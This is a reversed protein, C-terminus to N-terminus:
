HPYDSEEDGRDPGTESPTKERVVKVIYVWGRECETLHDENKGDDYDPSGTREPSDTARSYKKNKEGLRKTKKNIEGLGKLKEINGGSIKAGDSLEYM